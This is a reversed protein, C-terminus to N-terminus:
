SDREKPGFNVNGVALKLSWRYSPKLGSEFVPSSVPLPPGFVRSELLRRNPVPGFVKHPNACPQSQDAAKDSVDVRRLLAESPRHASAWARSSTADAPAEDGAHMLQDRAAVDLRHDRVEAEERQAGWM